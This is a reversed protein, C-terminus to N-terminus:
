LPQNTIRFRPKAIKLWQQLPIPCFRVFVFGALSAAKKLRAIPRLSTRVYRAFVISARWANIYSQYATLCVNAVLRTHLRTPGTPVIFRSRSFVCKAPGNIRSGGKNVSSPGITVQIVKIQSPQIKKTLGEFVNTPPAPCFRNMWVVDISYNL